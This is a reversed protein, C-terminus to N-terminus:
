DRQNEIWKVAQAVTEVTLVKPLHPRKVMIVTVGLAAAAALKARTAEGGANKSVLHDIKHGRMLALENEVSFPPRQVICKGRPPVREPPEISRALSWIDRRVLFPAFSRSGVTLFVRAGEPIARAAGALDEVMKWERAEPWAPRELRLLPLGTDRAVEFAHRSMRSAFPHTADVIAGIGEQRIYAKLGESGGFGGRRHAGALPATTVGSLSLVAGEGLVASLARAEATGGLILGKM